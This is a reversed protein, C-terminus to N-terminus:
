NASPRRLLKRRMFLDYIRQEFLNMPQWERTFLTKFLRYLRQPHLGFALVYFLAMGIIRYFNVEWGSVNRCYSADQMFDEQQILGAFYKDCIEPIVNEELLEDFLESGPYPTFSSINCDDVGMIAMRWSFFLTKLIDARKEDPFGVIIIIKTTHGIRVTEKLSDQVNGLKIKKKISKLMRESGSEPAYVLFTCGAEKLALLIETDLAESRTGSPLQWSISINRRKLEECFDLIWQRKIIATPDCFDLRNADYTDILYQIEDVVKAPDRMVYRTSWMKPNSCFTCQYPCGRTAAIPVVKSGGFGFTFAGSFYNEMNLLHWAPIPLGDIDVIRGGSGNDIIDGSEDQYVIGPVDTTDKGTAIRHVLELFILEGEGLVVFDIAPCNRLLYDPLAASHEGGAVIPITPFHKKIAKILERQLLWEQSFMMSIGIAISNPDIRELIEEISLGQTIYRGCDSPSINGFGEGVADVIDVTYGAKELTAALYAVGIPPISAFSYTTKSLVSFPRLIQVKFDKGGPSVFANTAEYIQTRNQPQLLRAAKRPPALGDNPNRM